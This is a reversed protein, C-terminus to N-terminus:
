RRTLVAVAVFCFFLVFIVGNLTFFAANMRRLDTPSVISHEYVLLTAVLAAFVPPLFPPVAIGVGPLVRAVRHVVLAVLITAAINKLYDGRRLFLYLSVALPILAGGVNLAIVTGPWQRVVPVVYQMGYYSVIEGSRVREGTLQAVPINISSGLLSLGLVLLIAGASVGLSVSLHRLVGGAVLAATLVLLLCFAAFFPLSVPLYHM